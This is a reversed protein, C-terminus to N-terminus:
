VFTRHQNEEIGGPGQDLERLRYLRDIGPMEAVTTDRGIGLLQSCREEFSEPRDGFRYERRIAIALHDLALPPPVHHRMDRPSRFPLRLASAELFTEVPKELVIRAPASPPSKRFDNCNEIFQCGATGPQRDNGIEVPAEVPDEPLEIQVPM